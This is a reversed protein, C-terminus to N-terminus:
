PHGTSSVPTSSIPTSSIPTFWDNMFLTSLIPAIPSGMGLGNTQEYWSNQSYFVSKSAWTCWSTFEQESLILLPNPDNKYHQYAIAIAEDVPVNTFLNVVDISVMHCKSFKKPLKQLKSKLDQSSNIHSKVNMTYKKLVDAM